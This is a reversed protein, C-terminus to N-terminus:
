RAFDASIYIALEKKGAAIGRWVQVNVCAAIAAHAHVGAKMASAVVQAVQEVFARAPVAPAAAGNVFKFLSHKERKENDHHSEGHTQRAGAAM